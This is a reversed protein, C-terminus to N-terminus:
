MEDIIGKALLDVMNNFIVDPSNGRQHGKVWEFTLDLKQDKIEKLIDDKILKIYPEKTKWKGTCWDRVGMYDAKLIIKDGKKFNKKFYRLAQLAGLMEMTPNSVLNTGYEKLLYEATAELSFKDVVKGDVIMVGGCGLRGSASGGKFHSGDTYITINRM